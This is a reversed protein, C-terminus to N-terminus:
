CNLEKRHSPDKTITNAIRMTSFLGSYIAKNLIYVNHCIGRRLRLNGIKLGLSKDKKDLLTYPLYIPFGFVVTKWLGFYTRSVIMSNRLAWYTKRHQLDVNYKEITYSEDHIIDVDGRYIVKFGSRWSRFCYEVDEEFMPALREDLVGIEEFLTTRILMCAGSVTNAEGVFSAYPAEETDKGVGPNFGASITQFIM